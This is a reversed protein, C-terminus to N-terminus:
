KPREWLEEWPLEVGIGAMREHLVRIRDLPRVLYLQDRRGAAYAALRPAMRGRKLGMRGGDTALMALLGPIRAQFVRSFRGHAVDPRPLSDSHPIGALIGCNAGLMTEYLAEDFLEARHSLRTWILGPNVFPHYTETRDLVQLHNKAHFDRTRHLLVWLWARRTESDVDPRFRDIERVVRRRLQRAQDEAFLVEPRLSLHAELLGVSLDSPDRAHSQVVQEYVWGRVADEGLLGDVMPPVADMREVALSTYFRRMPFGHPAFFWPDGFADFLSGDVTRVTLPIGLRSAIDRGPGLDGTGADVLVAEDPSHGLAALRCAIYRSDYGGSLFSGIRDEERVVRSLLGDVSAAIDHVLEERGVVADGDTWSDADQEMTGSDLDIRVRGPPMRQLGSFLSRGNLPHELLIWASLAAPDVAPPVLGAEVLPWAESGFVVRSGSERLFMPRLGLCDTELELVRGSEDVILLNFEGLWSGTLRPGGPRYGNLADQLTNRGGTLAPHLPRGIAIAHLGADQQHWEELELESRGVLLLELGPVTILRTAAGDAAM